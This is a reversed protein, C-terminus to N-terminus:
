LAEQQDKESIMTTVFLRQMGHLLRRDLKAESSGM